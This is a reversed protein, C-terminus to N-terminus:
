SNKESCYRRKTVVTTLVVQDVTNKFQEKLFLETTEDNPVVDDEATEEDNTSSTIRKPDRKYEKQITTPRQGSKGAVLPKKDSKLHEGGKWQETCIQRCEGSENGLYTETTRQLTTNCLTQKEGCKHFVLPKQHAKERGKEFVPFRVKQQGKALWKLWNKIQRLSQTCGFCKNNHQHRQWM